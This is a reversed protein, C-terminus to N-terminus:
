WTSQDELSAKQIDDEWEKNALRFVEEFFGRPDDIETEDWAMSTYEDHNDEFYIHFDFNKTTLAFELNEMLKYKHRYSFIKDPDLCYKLILEKRDKPDNPNYKALEVGKTEERDYIDFIGVFYNLSADFPLHDSLPHFLM